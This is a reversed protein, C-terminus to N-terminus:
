HIELGAQKQFTLAEHGPQLQAGFRILTPKRVASAAEDSGTNVTLRKATVSIAHHVAISGIVLSLIDAPLCECNISIIAM